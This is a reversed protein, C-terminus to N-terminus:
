SLTVDSFPDDHHPDRGVQRYKVIRRFYEPLGQTSSGQSPAGILLRDFDYRRRTYAEKMHELVEGSHLFVGLVRALSEPM